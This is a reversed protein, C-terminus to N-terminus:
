PTRSRQRANQARDYADIESQNANEIKHGGWTHKPKPVPAREEVLANYTGIFARARRIADEPTTDNRAVIERALERAEEDADSALFEYARALADYPEANTHALIQAALARAASDNSV